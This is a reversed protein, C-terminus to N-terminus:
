NSKKRCYFWSNPYIKNEVWRLQWVTEAGFEDFTLNVSQFDEVCVVSRCCSTRTRCYLRCTAQNLSLSQDFKDNKFGKWSDLWTILLLTRYHGVRCATLILQTKPDLRCTALDVVKGGVNWVPRSKERTRVLIPAFLSLLHFFLIFVLFHSWSSFFSALCNSVWSTALLLRVPKM